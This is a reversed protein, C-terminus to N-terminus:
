VLQFISQFLLLKYCLSPPLPPIPPKLGSLSCQGYLSLAPLINSQKFDGYIMQYYFVYQINGVMMKDQMCKEKYEQKKFNEGAKRM